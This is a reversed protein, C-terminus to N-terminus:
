IDTIKKALIWLDRMTPDSEGTGLTDLSYEPSKKGSIVGLYRNQNSSTNSNYFPTSFPASSKLLNKISVCRNM